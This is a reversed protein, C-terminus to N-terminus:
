SGSDCRVMVHSSVTKAEARRELTDMEYWKRAKERGDLGDESMYILVGHSAVSPKAQVSSTFEDGASGFSRSSGM